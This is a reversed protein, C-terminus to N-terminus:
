YYILVNSKPYDNFNIRILNLEKLLISEINNFEWYPIRILKINNDICYQTKISDKHKRDNFNENTMNFSNQNFHQQGDFEICINYDILYFDFPLPLKDKCDNFKYQYIFKINYKGLIRHIEQEGSSMSCISCRKGAMFNNLSTKYYHGNPCLLTILERNNIYESILTYGYNNLINNVDNINKRQNVSLQINNCTLCKADNKMFNEYTPHWNHGKDCIINLKMNRNIYETTLLTYNLSNCKNILENMKEDKYCFECKNRTNRGNALRKKFSSFSIDFIHNNPCKVTIINNIGSYEIKKTLLTYGFSEIYSKIYNFDVKNINTISKNISKCTPCGMSKRNNRIITQFNVIYPEHNNKCIVKIISKAGCYNVFDVFKLGKSEVIEVIYEKSIM